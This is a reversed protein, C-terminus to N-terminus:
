SEPVASEADDRKKDPLDTDKRDALADELYNWSYRRLQAIRRHVERFDISMGTCEAIEEDGALLREEVGCQSLLTDLRSNTSQRTKRMYRRFTFFNKEYLMSFVTCHYSDTCVWAANRILNLFESPGVDWPTEDAYGEDSRVYEDLHTLAIIRCGTEEALRSAFRRHAPNSGLFYCFIYEGEALPKQDQVQLWEEGTFLLTPDAVVPVRRGSLRAVLKQGSRERM